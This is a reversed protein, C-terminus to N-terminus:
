LPPLIQWDPKPVPSAGRKLTVIEDRLADIERTQRRVTTRWGRQANWTILGGLLAGGLFFIVCVLFLPMQPSQADASSFPNLSLLVRQRNALAFAILLVSVPILIFWFALRRFTEM